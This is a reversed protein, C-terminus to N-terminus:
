CDYMHLIDYTDVRDGMEEMRQDLDDDSVYRGNRRVLESAIASSLADSLMRQIENALAILFGRNNRRLKPYALVAIIWRNNAFRQVMRYGTQYRSGEDLPSEGCLVRKLADHMIPGWSLTIADDEAPDAGERADTYEDAYLAVFLQVESVDRKPIEGLFIMEAFGKAGIWVPFANRMARSAKESLCFVSNASMTGEKMWKGPLHIM